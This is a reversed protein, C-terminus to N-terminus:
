HKFMLVAETPDATDPMERQLCALGAALELGM